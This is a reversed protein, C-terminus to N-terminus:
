WPSSGRAWSRGRSRRRAPHFTRSAPWSRGEASGRGQSARARRPRGQRFRWAGGRTASPDSGCRDRVKQRAGTRPSYPQRLRQRPSKRRRDEAARGIDAVLDKAKGGGMDARKKGQGRHAIRRAVEEGPAERDPDAHVPHDQDASHGSSVEPSTTRVPSVSAPRDPGVTKKPERHEHAQAVADAQGIGIGPHQRHPRVQGAGGRAKAARDQDAATRRQGGDGANQKPRAGDSIGSIRRISAEEMAETM